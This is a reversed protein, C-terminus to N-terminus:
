LRGFAERFAPLIEEPMTFGTTRQFSPNNPDYQAIIPATLGEPLRGTRVGRKIAQTISGTKGRLSAGDEGRLETADGWGGGDVVVRIIELTADPLDRLLSEARAATWGLATATVALGRDAALSVLDRVLDEPADEIVIKM